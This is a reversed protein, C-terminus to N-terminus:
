HATSVEERLQLYTTILMNIFINTNIHIHIHNKKGSSPRGKRQSGRQDIQMQMQAGGRNQNDATGYSASIGGRVQNQEEVDIMDGEDDEFGDPARKINQQQQNRHM